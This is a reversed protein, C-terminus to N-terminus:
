QKVVVETMIKYYSDPNDVLFDLQHNEYRAFDQKNMFGECVVQQNDIDPLNFICQICSKKNYCAKCQEDIKTYYQNYRAAIAEFDIKIETDTLEGVAFQHGIRECPLIKGNVTVFVKKGFPICTGTPIIRRDVFNKGLLLENYNEYVFDSYQLLYTTVSQYTGSKMFMDREIKEYHEAQHLSEYSNRYTKMFSECMEPRIGSNNLEGITPIKNYKEKFFQYISEVSNRNHLVSNFNVNREFFAPYKERLLDVNGVIKEFAENGRKDVRYSSNEKNGDLSILLNFNHAVLYDMNKSLLLANTTMSFRFIRTHCVVENELYEVIKKIFPMNQLPEGGYFSIYVIKRASLNLPSQWLRCLYKLLMIAKKAPLRKNERKDYDSYFKGYACYTCNLNCSDTIEFTIQPTNALAREINQAQLYNQKTKM